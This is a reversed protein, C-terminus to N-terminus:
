YLGAKPDDGHVRAEETAWPGPYKRHFVWFALLGLMAGLADMVFDRVDASRSKMPMQLLEDVAAYVISVALVLIASKRSWPKRVSLWLSFLFAFGLYMALHVAKDTNHPGVKVKPLPVHTALFMAIGYAALVM